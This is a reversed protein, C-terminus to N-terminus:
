QMKSSFPGKSMGYTLNNMLLYSFLSNFHSLWLLVVHCIKHGSLLQLWRVETWAGEGAGAATSALTALM